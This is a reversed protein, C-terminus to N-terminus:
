GSWFETNRTLIQVTLYCNLILFSDGGFPDGPHTFLWLASGGFHVVPRNFYHGVVQSPEDTVTFHISSLRSEASQLYPHVGYITGRLAM